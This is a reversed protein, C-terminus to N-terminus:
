VYVSGYTKMVDHKIEAPCSHSQSLRPLGSSFTYEYRHATSHTSRTAVRKKNKSASSPYRVLQSGPTVLAGEKKKENKQGRGRKKKNCVSLHGCKNFNRQPM